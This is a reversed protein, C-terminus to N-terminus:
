MYMYINCSVHLSQVGKVCSLIIDPGYSHQLLLVVIAKAVTQNHMRYYTGKIGLAMDSTNYRDPIGRVKSLYFLPPHSATSSSESALESDGM